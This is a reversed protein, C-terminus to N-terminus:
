IKVSNRMTILLVNLNIGLFNNLNQFDMIINKCTIIKM